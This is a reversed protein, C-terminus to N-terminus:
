LLKGQMDAPLEIMSGSMTITGTAAFAGVSQLLIIEGPNVVAEAKGFTYGFNNGNFQWLPQSGTDNVYLNVVDPTAGTTMGTIVVRCLSWLYGSDPGVQFASGISLASGSAKGYIQPLRMVKVGRLQERQEATILASIEEASPLTVRGGGYLTLEPV